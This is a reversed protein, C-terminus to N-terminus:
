VRAVSHPGEKSADYLLYYYIQVFDPVQKAEGSENQKTMQDTSKVRSEWLTINAVRNKSIKLELSYSGLELDAM